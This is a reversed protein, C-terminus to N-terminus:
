GLPKVKQEIFEQPTGRFEWEDNINRDCRIEVMENEIPDCTGSKKYGWITDLVKEHGENSSNLLVLSPDKKDFYDQLGSIVGRMKGLPKSTKHKPNDQDAFPILTGDSLEGGIIRILWRGDSLPFQVCSVEGPTNQSFSHKSFFIKEFLLLDRKEVESSYELYM